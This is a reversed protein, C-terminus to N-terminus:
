FIYSLGFKSYSQELHKVYQVEIGLTENIKTRYAINGYFKYNILETRVEVINHSDINLKAGIIPSVYTSAKQFEQNVQNYSESTVGVLEYLLLKNFFNHSYGLTFNFSNAFKNNALSSYISYKLSWSMNNLVNSYPIFSELNLLHLALTEETNKIYEISLAEVNVNYINEFNNFKGYYMPRYYFGYGGNQLLYTKLEQNKIKTTTTQSVFNNQSYKINDNKLWSLAKIRNIRINDYYMPYNYIMYVSIDLFVELVKQSPRFKTWKTKILHVVEEKEKNSLQQYKSEFVSLDSKKLSSKKILNLDFLKNVIDSPLVFFNNTLDKKIVVELSKALFFACNKDLFYYKTNAHQLEQMHLEYDELMETTFNLEYLFIDRSEMVSYEKLKTYNKELIYNAKFGGTLGKYLYAIGGENNTIAGFHIVDADVFSDKELTIYLHGFMSAAAKTFINPFTLYIKQYKKKAIPNYAKLNLHSNLFKFRLPFKTQFENDSKIAQISAIMEAKPNSKGNESIFFEDNIMYSEYGSLTPKYYLLRLWDEHYYFSEDDIKNYNTSSFISACIIAILFIIKM